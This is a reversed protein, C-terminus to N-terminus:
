FGQKLELLRRLMSQEGARHHVNEGLEVLAKLDDLFQLTGVRFDHRLVTSSEGLHVRFLPVSNKVRIVYKYLQM